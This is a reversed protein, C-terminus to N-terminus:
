QTPRQLFHRLKFIHNKFLIGLSVSNPEGTDIKWLVEHKILKKYISVICKCNWIVLIISIEYKLDNVWFGSKVWNCNCYPIFYDYIKVKQYISSCLVIAEEFHFIVDYPVFTPFTGYLSCWTSLYLGLSWKVKLLWSAAKM